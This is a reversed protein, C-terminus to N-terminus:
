PGFAATVKKNKDMNLTCTSITGKCSGSWGLFNMGPSPIATMTVSTGPFFSESCDSECDIGEPISTVMGNGRVSVSLKKGKHQYYEVVWDSAFRGVGLHPIGQPNLVIRQNDFSGPDKKQALVDSHWGGEDFFGYILADANKIGNYLWIVFIVHITGDDNVAIDEGCGGLARVQFGPSALRDLFHTSTTLPEEEWQTGGYRAYVYQNDSERIYLFHITGSSDITIRGQGGEFAGLSNWTNGDRRVVNGGWAVVPSGDPLFGMSTTDFIGEPWAGITEGTGAGGDFSLYRVGQGVHVVRPFGDPAIAITPWGGGAELVQSKWSNGNFVAYKIQAGETHQYVLHIKGEQDVAASYYRPYYFSDVKESQWRVGDFWFHMLDDEPPDHAYFQAYFLHANGNKDLVICPSGAHKAVLKKIWNRAYGNEAIATVALFIAILLWFLVVSRKM